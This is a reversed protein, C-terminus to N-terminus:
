LWCSCHGVQKWLVSALDVFAGDRQRLRLLGALMILLLTIDTTLTALSFLKIVNLHLIVCTREAPVWIARGQQHILCSHWVILFHGNVKAIGSILDCENLNVLSLSTLEGSLQFGMNTVWLVASIAM